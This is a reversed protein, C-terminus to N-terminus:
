PANRVTFSWVKGTYTKVNRGVGTMEDIRWYYVKGPILVGSPDYATATIIGKDTNGTGSLVDSYNDGFYVRRATAGFGPSWRLTVDPEVLTAADVPLPNWATLPPVIFNWVQGKIIDNPDLENVEDIRWYYTNGLVLAAPYASNPLGISLTRETHNGIFADAAGDNVDSFDTSLYVNHSFAGVKPAWRLIVSTSQNVYGEAPEPLWAGPGHTATCVGFMETNDMIGYIAEANVGWAYVPVNAATHNTSSWSVTPLNGDGNNTLVKLGGTEHDATVLVLTDGRGAAWNLIMRVTKNFEVTEFINAKTLNSHGAHDINGGEIMLFFGNPEDDVINLATLAMDSLHPQDGMGDAEYKMQGTGFQGSLHYTSNTDVALLGVADTVVTYGLDKFKQSTMGNGGGGLLINVQTQFRYDDTIQEYNTRSTEHAGFAAPTADTMFSTTVLGTVRGRAKYFELLTLLDNSDGPIEKSIVGNNVKVGTALATGAGASDTIANDASGTTLEGKYPLSEFSLTGPLGNLYMGAAKVQEPGMGDGILFIVNNPEAQAIYPLFLVLCFLVFPFWRLLSKKAM